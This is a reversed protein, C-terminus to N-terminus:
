DKSRGFIHIAGDRHLNAPAICQLYTERPLAQREGVHDQDTRGIENEISRHFNLCPIPSGPLPLPLPYFDQEEPVSPKASALGSLRPERRNPTLPVLTRYGSQKTKMDDTTAIM